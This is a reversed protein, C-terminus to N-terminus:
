AKKKRLEDLEIFMRELVDAPTEGFKGESYIRSAIKENIRITGPLKDLSMSDLVM